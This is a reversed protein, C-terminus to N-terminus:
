FKSVFEKLVKIIKLSIIEFFLHPTLSRHVSDSPVSLTKM